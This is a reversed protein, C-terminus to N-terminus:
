ADAGARARPHDPDIQLTEAYLQGAEETRGAARARDAAALREATLLDRQRLYYARLEHNRPEKATEEKLRAFATMRDGDAFAERSRELAPNTACASLLVFSLSPLLRLWARPAPKLTM